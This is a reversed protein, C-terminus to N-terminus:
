KNKSVAVNWESGSYVKNARHGGDGNAAIRLM